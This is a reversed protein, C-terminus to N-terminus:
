INVNRLMECPQAGQVLLVRFSLYIYEEVCSILAIQFNLKRKLAYKSMFSHDTVTETFPIVQVLILIRM